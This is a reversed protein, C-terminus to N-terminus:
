CFYFLILLSFLNYSALIHHFSFHICLRCKSLVLIDWFLVFRSSGTLSVTNGLPLTPIKPHASPCDPVPGHRQVRVSFCILTLDIDRFYTELAVGATAKYTPLISFLSLDLPGLDVQLLLIM